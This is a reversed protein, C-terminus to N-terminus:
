REWCSLSSRTEKKLVNYCNKSTGLKPIDLEPGSVAVPVTVNPEPRITLSRRLLSGEQLSILPARPIIGSDRALRFNNRALLGSVVLWPSCGVVRVWPQM